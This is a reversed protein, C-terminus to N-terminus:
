VLTRPQPVFRSFLWYIPWICVAHAVAAIITQRFWVDLTFEGPSFVGFIIHVILTAAVACLPPAVPNDSSFRRDFLGFGTGVVLRSLVYSGISVGACYGTLIGAVLGFLAGTEMGYLLAVSVVSLLVIDIHVDWVVFRAFVTTQLVLLLWLLPWLRWTSPSAQM